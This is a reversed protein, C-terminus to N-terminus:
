YKENQDHFYNQLVNPRLASESDRYARGIKGYDDLVLYATVDFKPVLSPGPSGVRM